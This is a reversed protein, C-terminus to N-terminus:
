KGAEVKGLGFRRSYDHLEQILHLSRAGTMSTDKVGMECRQLTESFGPTTWGLRERVGRQIEQPTSAPPLGIRTLLVYRFRQYAVGLAEAAGGKRQYLDGMTEVFELPSLRSEKGLPRMPGSHRGFTFLAAALILGVQVMSWPIPTRGLYSWFGLREGHFYEDWLIRKDGPDGIANLFLMLNSAETLGFNTLPGSDAWWVVHGKGISYAVVIGGSQDGYYRMPYGSRAAWRSNAKMSIEPAGRTFPAPLEAAYIKEEVEAPMPGSLASSPALINGFSGTVLVQGGQQVFKRLSTKEESSAPIVPDALVLVTRAPASASDEGASGDPLGQPPRVWREVRYGLDGLLLYAAKAGGSDASYTSPLGRSPTTAPPSVLLAITSIAAILAGSIILIKRDGRALAPQM